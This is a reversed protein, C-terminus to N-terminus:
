GGSDKETKHGSSQAFKSGIEFELKIIVIGEINEGTVCNATDDPVKQSAEKSLCANSTVIAKSDDLSTPHIVMVFLRRDLECVRDGNKDPRSNHCYFTEEGFKTSTIIM